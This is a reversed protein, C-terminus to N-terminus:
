VITIKTVGNEKTKVIGIEKELDTEADKKNLDGLILGKVYGSFNLDKVHEIILQDETNTKNFAVPKSFRNKANM